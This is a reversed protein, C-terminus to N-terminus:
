QAVFIVLTELSLKLGIFRIGIRAEKRADVCAIVAAVFARERSSEVLSLDVSCLM